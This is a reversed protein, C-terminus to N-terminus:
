IAPLTAGEVRSMRYFGILVAGTGWLLVVLWMLGGLVPILGVVRLILLGLAMRGIPASMANSLNSSTEGLIKNGMWTGVFIQALYIVPAYLMAGAIGAGVGIFVLLIGLILIFFGAILALAGVGLPLGISGTERLTTRFFGPLVTLIVIGALLAAAYSFIAHM